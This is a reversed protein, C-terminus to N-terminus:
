YQLKMIPRVEVSGGELIPCGKSIEVAEALDRAQVVIFGLVIDKTEAFPGDTVIRQKGTVVQGGRDLPQGPDKLQGKSELQRIWELWAQMSKQAREPTGIAEEQATPTSRFLYIFDSM